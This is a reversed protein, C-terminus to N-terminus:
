HITTDRTRSLSHLRALLAMRAERALRSKRAKAMRAEYWGPDHSRRVQESSPLYDSDFMRPGYVNGLPTDL